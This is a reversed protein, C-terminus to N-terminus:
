PIKEFKVEGSRKPVAAIHFPATLVQATVRDRAPATERYRVVVQGAEEAASVIEVSFGATPRSGMFVAVIMERNFDVPPAAHEYNHTRWLASWEEATRAVAQRDSEVSSHAGRDITRITLMDGNASAAAALVFAAVMTSACIRRRRDDTL